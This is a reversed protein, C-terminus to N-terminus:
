LQGTVDLVHLQRWDSEQKPLATFALLTRGGASVVVPDGVATLGGTTLTKSGSGDLKAVLVNSDQAPAASGYLVAMGDPTVAPASHQPLRVDKAVIRREGGALPVMAIDWRGDGRENTFYVVNSGVIRPRTQDGAGGALMKQLGTDATWSFVEETNKDKKSFVLTKGDPSFRPATEPSDTELTVSVKNEKPSFRYIDGKGTASSSFALWQGDASLSPWGLSGKAVTSNLYESSSGPATPSVSYLRMTGGANAAEFILVNKPHWAPNAAYGGGGSFSSSAGPILVKAPAGPAANSAKVVYLDVKDANNNVEFALWQGDASWQPNGAHGGGPWTVEVAQASSAALMLALIM